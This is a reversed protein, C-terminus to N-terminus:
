NGNINYETNNCLNNIYPLTSFEMHAMHHTLYGSNELLESSPNASYNSHKQHQMRIFAMTVMGSVM